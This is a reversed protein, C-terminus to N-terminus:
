RGPQMLQVSHEANNVNTLIPKVLAPSGPALVPEVLAPGVTLGPKVPASGRVVNTVSAAATM